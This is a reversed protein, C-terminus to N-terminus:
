PVVFKTVNDIVLPQTIKGVSEPRRIMPPVQFMIMNVAIRGFNFEM